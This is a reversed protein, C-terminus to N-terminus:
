ILATCRVHLLCRSLWGNEAMQPGELRTRELSADGHGGLVNQLTHHERLTASVEDRLNLLALETDKPKNGQRFAHVYVELLYNEDRRQDGLGHWAETQELDGLWIMDRKFNAEQTPENWYIGVGDLGPRAQLLELLKEKAAPITSDAM